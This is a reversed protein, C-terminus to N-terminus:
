KSFTTLASHHVLIHAYCNPTILLCQIAMNKVQIISTYQKRYTWSFISEPDQSMQPETIPELKLFSKLDVFVPKTIGM